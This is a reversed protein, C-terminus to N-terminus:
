RQDFCLQERSWPVVVVFRKALTVELGMGWDRKL